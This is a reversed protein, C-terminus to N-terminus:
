TDHEKLYVFKNRFSCYCLIFNINRKKKKVNIIYTIINLMKRENKLFCKLHLFTNCKINNFM